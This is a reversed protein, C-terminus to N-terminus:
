AARVARGQDVAVIKRGHIIYEALTAWIRGRIRNNFRVARPTNVLTHGVKLWVGFKMGFLGRQRPTVKQRTVSGARGQFVVAQPFVSSDIGVAMNMGFLRSVSGAGKGLWANRYRGTRQLTRSPAPQTGFAKTKKWSRQKGAGTITAQKNFQDEFSGPGTRLTKFIQSKVAGPLAKMRQRLIPTLKTKPPVIRILGM